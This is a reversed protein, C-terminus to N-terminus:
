PTPTAGDRVSTVTLAATADVFPDPSYVGSLDVILHTTTLAYFCAEGQADLRVSVLNPVTQNAVFNLNSVVPRDTGCPYATVFGPASGGTVTVNFVAADLKLLPVKITIVNGAVLPGGTGERTDVLRQPALGYYGTDLTPEFDGALDALLHLRQQAYFCVTQTASLKVTVLNPVTQNKAYNLNSALPRPADCPYATLYGDAVPETVTVNMTVATAAVDVKGKLDLTYVGSTAVPTRGASTRTDFLRVPALAKYGSGGGLLYWGGLDAVLHVPTLTYFCVKASAALAVVVQNPVTQGTVYNLNSATPRAIDCPYVTVFGNAAGDTATVNMVAATADVPAKSSLDLEYVQGAGRRPGANDRTDLLRLPTVPVLGPATLPGDGTSIVYRFDDTTVPATPSYYGTLEVRVKVAAGATGLAHVCVTGGTGLDTLAASRVGAPGTVSAATPLAAGCAHLIVSGGDPLTVLTSLGTTNGALGAVAPIVADATGVTATADFITTVTPQAVYNGTPVTWTDVILHAPGSPRLCLEPDAGTGTRVLNSVTEGLHFVVAIPDLGAPASCPAIELIGSEDPETVTVNLVVNTASTYHLPADPTAKTGSTRTDVHAGPGTADARGPPLAVVMAGAVLGAVGLLSRLKTGM